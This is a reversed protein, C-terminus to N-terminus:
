WFSNTPTFVSAIKPKAFTLNYNILLNIKLTKRLLNPKNFYLNLLNAM